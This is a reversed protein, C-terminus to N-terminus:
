LTDIVPWDWNLTSPSPCVDAFKSANRFFTLSAAESNRL